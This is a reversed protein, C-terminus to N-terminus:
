VRMAAKGPLLARRYIQQLKKVARAHIRCVWSRSLKLERGIEELTKQQYYYSTIVRQEQESLSKMGKRLWQIAEAKEFTDYPSDSDGATIEVHELTSDLSLLYVSTMTFVLDRFRDLSIQQPGSRHNSQATIQQELYYDM